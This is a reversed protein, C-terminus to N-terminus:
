YNTDNHTLREFSKADQNPPPHKTAHERFVAFTTDSLMNTLNGEARARAKTTINKQVELRYAFM